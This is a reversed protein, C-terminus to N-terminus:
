GLQRVIAEALLCPVGNGIIKCALQAKEPLSYSDPLTQFRALARPTIRVVRAGEVVKSVQRDRSKTVTLAPEGSERFSVDESRNPTGSVLLAMPSTCPRRLANAQITYCPEGAERATSERISQKTDILVARTRGCSGAACVTYSARCGERWLDGRESQNRNVLLAKPLHSPKHDTIVTTAPENADRLGDGYQQNANKSEVLVAQTQREALLEVLSEPLRSIQWQALKAEPLEPTLDAIAEYWGVWQSKPLKPPLAPPTGDLVARLILRHRTQPVGFEAANVVQEDVGYGLEALTDKIVQLSESRKYGRVNELIFVKPRLVAIFNATQSATARDVELEQANTKAVSFNVCVPSAWLIDPRELTSPDVDLVSKCIVQHGLNLSAIDAIEPDIEIGWIPKYGAAIAGIDALGGGTFMSAFTKM